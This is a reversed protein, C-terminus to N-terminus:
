LCFDSVIDERIVGLGEGTDVVVCSYRISSARLRVVSKWVDGNWSRKIRQPMQHREDLPNCDHM